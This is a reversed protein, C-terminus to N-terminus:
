AVKIDCVNSCEVMPVALSEVWSARAAPISDFSAAVMRGPRPVFGQVSFRPLKQLGTVSKVWAVMERMSVVSHVGPVVTTRFEFEPVLVMLRMTAELKELDVSGVLSAYDARATKVDMAVYDVLRERILVKLKDPFSGNTDIKVEFGLEKIARVFDVDLTALPEGGTICVGDLVGRRSRLFDLVGESSLSKSEEKVVLGPNHCFGCRFNCGFIFLTCAVRGPFDILSVNELHKIKMVCRSCSAIMGNRSKVKMGSIWQDCIVLLGHIASM